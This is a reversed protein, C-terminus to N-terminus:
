NGYYVEKLKDYLDGDSQYKDLFSDDNIIIKNKGILERVSEITILKNDLMTAIVLTNTTNVDNDKDKIIDFVDVYVDVTDSVMDSLIPTDKLIKDKFVSENIISLNFLPISLVFLIIFIYVYYEIFGVVMGLIKSPLSLFVTMKIVWEILGTVVLIIRFAFFLVLFIILFSILQYFLINVASVGKIFGFFDFFPLNEYLFVMLRDKLMFSVIVILITGVFHTGEKIVGNKFGVICGLVLFILIILDVIGINM